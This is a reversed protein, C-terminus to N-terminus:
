CTATNKWEHPNYEKEKRLDAAERKPQSDLPQPEALARKGAPLLSVRFRFPKPLLPTLTLKLMSSCRSHLVSPQRYVELAATPGEDGAEEELGGSENVASSCSQCDVDFYVEAATTNKVCLQMVVKSGVTLPGLDVVRKEVELKPVIGSGVLLVRKSCTSSSSSTSSCCCPINSTVLMPNPQIQAKLMLEGEFTEASKPSFCLRLTKIEHGDLEFEAEEEGRPRAASQTTHCDALVVTFPNGEEEQVEQIEAHLQTNKTGPSKRKKSHLKRLSASIKTPLACANSVRLLRSACFELGVVSFLVPNEGVTIRPQEVSFHVKFHSSSVFSGCRPDSVLIRFGRQQLGGQSAASPQSLIILHQVGNRPIGGASPWVGLGQVQRLDDTPKGAALANEVEQTPFVQFDLNEHGRNLIELVRWVIVAAALAERLPPAPPPTSSASVGSVRLQLLQPVVLGESNVAQHNRQVSPYAVVELAEKRVGGDARGRWSVALQISSMPPVICASPQVSFSCKRATLKEAWCCYLQSILLGGIRLYRNRGLTNSSSSSCNSSSCTVQKKHVPFDDVAALFFSPPFIKPLPVRVPAGLADVEYDGAFYVRFGLGKLKLGSESIQELHVHGQTIRAPYETESICTAAVDLPLPHSAGKVLCFLRQYFSCPIDFALSLSLRVRSKAPLFGSSPSLQLISEPFSQPFSFSTSCSSANTLEIAKTVKAGQKMDGFAVFSTKFSVDLAEVKGRVLLTPTSGISCKVRYLCQMTENVNSSSLRVTLQTSGLPPVFNREASVAIAAPGEEKELSQAAEDAQEVIEFEALVPSTNRIMLTKSRIEGPFFTGFDVVEETKDEILLYPIKGFGMLQVKYAKFVQGFGASPHTLTDEVRMTKEESSSFAGKERLVTSYAPTATLASEVAAQDYLEPPMLVECVAVAIYTCSANPRFTAECVVHKGAALECVSPVIVFPATVRWRIVVADAGTNAITLKESKKSGIAVGNFDVAEPIHIPSDAGKARLLVKFSGKDTSIELKEEAPEDTQPRFTVPVVWTMGPPVKRPEPLPVSFARSQPAKHCLVTPNLGVNKIVLQKEIEDGLRWRSWCLEPQCHLGLAAVQDDFSEHPGRLPHGGSPSKAM